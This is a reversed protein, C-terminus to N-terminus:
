KGEVIADVLELFLGASTHAKDAFAQTDKLDGTRVAGDLALKAGQVMSSLLALATELERRDTPNM